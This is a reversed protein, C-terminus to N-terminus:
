VYVGSFRMDKNQRAKMEITERTKKTLEGFNNGGCALMDYVYSVILSSAKGRALRFCLSMDSAVAKM